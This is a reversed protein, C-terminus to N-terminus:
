RTVGRINIMKNKSLIIIKSSEQEIFGKSNECIVDALKKAINKDFKDGSLNASSSFFNGYKMLFINHENNKVVRFSLLNPYIFTTKKAYRVFRRFKKPIRTNKKLDQFSPLVKLIKKHPTRNKREAILQPNKSLFGVTTDTQILIVSDENLYAM